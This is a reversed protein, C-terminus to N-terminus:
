KAVAPEVLIRSNSAPAVPAMRVVLLLEDLAIARTRLNVPAWFICKRFHFYLCGNLSHCVVGAADGTPQSRRGSRATQWNFGPYTTTKSVYPKQSLNEWTGFFVTL